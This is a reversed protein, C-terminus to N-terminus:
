FLPNFKCWTYHIHHDIKSSYFPIEVSSDFQTELLISPKNFM